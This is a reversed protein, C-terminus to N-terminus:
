GNKNLEFEIRLNAVNVDSQCTGTRFDTLHDFYHQSYTYDNRAMSGAPLPQM